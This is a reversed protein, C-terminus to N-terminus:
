RRTALEQRVTREVLLPVFERVPATDFTALASWVLEHIREGDLEPRERALRAEVEAIQDAEHTLTWSV